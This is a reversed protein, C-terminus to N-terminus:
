SKDVEPKDFKLIVMNEVDSYVQCIVVRENKINM